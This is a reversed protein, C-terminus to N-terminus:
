LVSLSAAAAMGLGRVPPSKIERALLLVGGAATLLILLRETNQTGVTVILILSVMLAGAIGGMTNAAYIRGVPKAPDAGGKIAAMAFPFSAGWLLTAPFLAYTARLFDGGAVTWGNAYLAPMQPLIRSM